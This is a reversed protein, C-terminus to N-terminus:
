GRIIGSTSLLMSEPLPLSLINRSIQMTFILPHLSVNHDREKFDNSTGPTIVATPADGSVLPSSVRPAASPDQPEVARVSRLQGQSSQTRSVPPPPVVPTRRTVVMTHQLTCLSKHSYTFILSSPPYSSLLFAYLQQYFLTLSTRQLHKESKPHKAQPWAHPINPKTDEAKLTM